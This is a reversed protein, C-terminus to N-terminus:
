EPKRGIMRFNSTRGTFLKQIVDIMSAAALSPFVSVDFLDAVKPWGKKEDFYHHLSQLWFNPSLLYTTEAVEFGTRKLIDGLTKEDYLVWHRPIHWGGWYRDKFLKYDWAKTNPTEMFLYGGPALMDYAKQIAQAPDDLHEIM